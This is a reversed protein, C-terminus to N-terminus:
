PGVRGVAQHEGRAARGSWRGRGARNATESSREAAPGPVERYEAEIISVNTVYMKSSYDNIVSGAGTQQINGVGTQSVSPPVAGGTKSMVGPVVAILGLVIPLAVIVVWWYKKPYDKTEGM